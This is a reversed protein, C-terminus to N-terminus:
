LSRRPPETLNTECRRAKLTSITIIGDPIPACTPTCMRASMPDTSVAAPHAGAAEPVVDGTVGGHAGVPAAV